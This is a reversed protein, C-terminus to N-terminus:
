FTMVTVLTVKLFSQDHCELLLCVCGSILRVQGSSANEKRRVHEKVKDAFSPQASGDSSSQEKAPSASTDEESTSTTAASSQKLSDEEEGAAYDQVCLV